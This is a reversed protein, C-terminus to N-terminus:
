NKIIKFSHSDGQLGTLRLYYAGPPFHSIDFSTTKTIIEGRLIVQGLSNIMQYIFETPDGASISLEIINSTPNPNLLFNASDNQSLFNISTVFFEFPQQIGETIQNNLNQVGSYDIQGLTYDLSGSQNSIHGGSSVLNNQSFVNSNSVIVLLFILSLNKM